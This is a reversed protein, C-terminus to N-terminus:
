APARAGRAWKLADALDFGLSALDVALLLWLYGAWGPAPAGALALGITGVLPLWLAIHPLAMAKSFGRQALMLVGNLAMAGVALTAVLPGHPQSIFALSALNVPGLLAAVWLQVWGPLRRFSRYADALRSM